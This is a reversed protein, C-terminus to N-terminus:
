NAVKVMSPRIIKDKYKYGKMLEEIIVNEDYEENEEHSVANHFSPDFKEGVCDICCVGMDCLYNILQNYIMEIGKYINDEKDPFSKLAREFNDVIPLLGSVASSVGDDFMTTKEKVTRKRFNDFEALSRQLKDFLEEKEKKENELEEKLADIESVEAMNEEIIEESNKISEENGSASGKEKNAM